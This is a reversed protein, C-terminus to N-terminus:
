IQENYIEWPAQKKIELYDTETEIHYWNGHYQYVMTKINTDLLQKILKEVMGTADGNFHTTFDQKKYYAAGLFTYPLKNNRETLDIASICNNEDLSVQAHKLSITNNPIVTIINKNLKDGLTVLDKLLTNQFLINAHIYLIRDALHDLSHYLADYTSQFSDEIYEIEVGIKKGDKFYNKIQGSLHNVAIVIKSCGANKLLGISYYLMPNGWLELMCKQTHEGLAGLRSGRGGAAIFACISKTQEQKNM